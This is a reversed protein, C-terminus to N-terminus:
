GDPQRRRAAESERAEAVLASAAASPPTALFQEAASRQALLSEVEARLEPDSSCTDDLLRPWSSSDSTLARDLVREVLQWREANM